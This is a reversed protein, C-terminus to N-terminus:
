GGSRRDPVRYEASWLSRAGGVADVLPRQGPLVLATDSRYWWLLQLDPLGIYSPLGQQDGTTGNLLAVVGNEGPRTQGM